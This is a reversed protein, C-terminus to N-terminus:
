AQSVTMNEPPSRWQVTCRWGFGMGAVV